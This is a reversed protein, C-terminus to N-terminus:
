FPDPDKVAAAACQAHTAPCSLSQDKTARGSRVFALSPSKMDLYHRKLGLVFGIGSCVQHVFHLPVVALAFLMGREKWFQKLVHTDALLTAIFFLVALAFFASGFATMIVFVVTANAFTVGLRNILSTNLDNTFRGRSLIIQSWPLARFFVDSAVVTRFTWAKLHKVLLTKDLKIRCGADFLDLGLAVDEMSHCTLRFGGISQFAPRRIAGLGTWFTEAECNGRQHTFHHLLNRYQSVFRPDGPESDYSGFVASYDPNQSMFMSIRQLADRHVVVDADVFVLIPATTHKAGDNRAIARGLRLPHQLTRVGLSAAIDASNDRSGDNVVVLERTPGPANLLAELCARLTVAGDHVPVIISLEPRFPETREAMRYFNM